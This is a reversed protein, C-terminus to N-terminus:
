KIMYGCSLICFFPLPPGENVQPIINHIKEYYIHIHSHITQRLIQLLTLKLLVNM